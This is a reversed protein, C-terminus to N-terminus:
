SGCDESRGENKMIYDKKVAGKLYVATDENEGILLVLSDYSKIPYNLINEVKRGNVYAAIPRSMDVSYKLNKFLDGWRASSRHVHVVDGVLDHLHAKEEQEDKMVGSDHTTCPELHMYRVDSFDVLRGREYVQFGGHYHVVNIQVFAIYYWYGFAIVGAIVLCLFLIRKM